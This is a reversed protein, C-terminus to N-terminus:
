TNVPLVPPEINQYLHSLKIVTRHSLFSIHNSDHQRTKVSKARSKESTILGCPSFSCLSASSFKAFRFLIEVRASLIVYNKENVMKVDNQDRIKSLTESLLINTHLRKNRPQLRKKSSPFRVAPAWVELILYRTIARDAMESENWEKTVLRKM